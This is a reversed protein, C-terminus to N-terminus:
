FRLQSLKKKSSLLNLTNEDIYGDILIIKKQAKKVIDIIIKSADFQSKKSFILNKNEPLVLPSLLEIFKAKIRNLLNPFVTQSFSWYADILDWEASLSRNKLFEDRSFNLQDPLFKISLNKGKNNRIIEEIEFIGLNIKRENVKKSKERDDKYFPISKVDIEGTYKNQFKYYPEGEIIRYDPFNGGFEGNSESEIFEIIEIDNIGISKVKIFAVSLSIKDEICDEIIKKIRILTNM